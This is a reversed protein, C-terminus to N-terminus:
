RAFGLGGIFLYGYNETTKHVQFLLILKVICGWEVLKVRFTFFPLKSQKTPFTEFNIAPTGATVDHLMGNRSNRFQM